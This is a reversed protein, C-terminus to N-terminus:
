AEDLAAQVDRSLGPIGEAYRKVYHLTGVYEALDHADLQEHGDRGYPVERLLGAAHKVLETSLHPLEAAWADELRQITDSRLRRFAAIDTPWTIQDARIADVVDRFVRHAHRYRGAELVATAPDNRTRARDVDQDSFKAAERAHEFARAAPGHDFNVDLADAGEALAGEYPGRHTGLGIPHHLRETAAAFRLRNSPPNSQTDLYQSRFARADALNASAYEHEQIMGGAEFVAAQTDTPFPGSTLVSDLGHSVLEEIAHHLVLAVTPDTGRYEWTSTFDAYAARLEDYRTQFDDADYQATAAVYSGWVEAAQARYYRWQGLRERPTEEDTMDGLHEALDSRERKIREAVAENPIEPSRPVADLLERARSEHARYRDAPIEIPFVNPPAPVPKTVLDTVAAMDYDPPNPGDDRELANCGALGALGGVTVATRGLFARRSQELPERSM